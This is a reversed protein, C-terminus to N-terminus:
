RPDVGTEHTQVTITFTCTYGGIGGLESPQVSSLALPALVGFATESITRERQMATLVQDILGQMQDESTGEIYGFFMVVNFTHNWYVMCGIPVQGHHTESTMPLSGVRRLVWCQVFQSDPQRLMDMTVDWNILKPDETFINEAGAAELLTKLEDRVATTDVM